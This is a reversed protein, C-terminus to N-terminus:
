LRAVRGHVEGLDLLRADEEDAAEAGVLRAANEAGERRVYQKRVDALGHRVHHRLASERREEKRVDVEVRQELARQLFVRCALLCLRSGFLRVSRARIRGITTSPAPEQPVASAM